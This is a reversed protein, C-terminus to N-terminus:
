LHYISHYLLLFSFFLSSSINSLHKQLAKQPTNSSNSSFYSINQSHKKFNLRSQTFYIITFHNNFRNVPLMRQFIHIKANPSHFIIIILQLAQKTTIELLLIPTKLCFEFLPKTQYILTSCSPNPPESLLPSAM